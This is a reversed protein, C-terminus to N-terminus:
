HCKAFGEEMKWFSLDHTIPVLHYGFNLKQIHITLIKVAMSVLASQSSVYDSFLDWLSWSRIQFHQCM